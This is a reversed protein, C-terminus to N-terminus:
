ERGKLPYDKLRAFTYGKKRLAPIVEMLADCGFWEPHNFHMIVIAGPKCNKLVNSAILHPPAFPMADGSLIDFSVITVGLLRAIKACAEDTFATASRYFLPRRGTILEIKRENAEIEDFADPVDPTGKIGYESEGNVSCPLHNLGHNEIEFLTDRSLELFAQYNDDIWAGSVFLTAPIRERRLYDILENNYKNSKNGCADFTFAIIKNRTMLDEDVGKVFEGWQGPSAHAFLTSVKRKQQVYSSDTYLQSLLNSNEMRFQKGSVPGQSYVQMPLLTIFTIGVLWRCVYSAWCLM